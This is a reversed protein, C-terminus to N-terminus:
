TPPLPPQAAHANKHPTIHPVVGGARVPIGAANTEGPSQDELWRVAGDPMVIPFELLRGHDSDSSTSHALHEELRSRDEAHVLSLLLTRSAPATPEVGLM